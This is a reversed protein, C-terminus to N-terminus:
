ATFEILSVVENKPSTKVKFPFAGAAMFDNIASRASGIQDGDRLNIEGDDWVAVALDRFSKTRDKANWLATLLRFPTPALGSRRPLTQWRFSSLGFPGDNEMPASEHLPAAAVSKPKNERDAALARLALMQVQWPYPCLLFLGRDWDGPLNCTGIFECPRRHPSDVSRSLKDLQPLAGRLGSREAYVVLQCDLEHFHEIESSPIGGRGDNTKVFDLIDDIAQVLSM